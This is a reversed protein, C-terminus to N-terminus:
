KLGLVRPTMSQHISKIPYTTSASCPEARGAVSEALAHAAGAFSRPGCSASSRAACSWGRDEGRGEAGSISGRRGLSHGQVLKATLDRSASTRM